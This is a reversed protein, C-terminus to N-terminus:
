LSLNIQLSKKPYQLVLNYWHLNLQRNASKKNIILKFTHRLLKLILINVVNNSYQNFIMFLEFYNLPLEYNKVELYPCYCQHKLLALHHFRLALQLQSPAYNLISEMLLKQFLYILRVNVNVCQGM